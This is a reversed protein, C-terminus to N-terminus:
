TRKSGRHSIELYTYSASGSVLAYVGENVIRLTPKRKPQGFKKTTTGLEGAEYLCHEDIRAIKLVEDGFRLHQSTWSQIEAASVTADPGNLLSELASNIAAVLAKDRTKRTGDDHTHRSHWSDFAEEESVVGSHHKASKMSMM